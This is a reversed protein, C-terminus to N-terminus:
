KWADTDPSYTWVGSSRLICLVYSSYFSSIPGSIFSLFDRYKCTSRGFHHGTRGLQPVGAAEGKTPNWSTRNAICCCTITNADLLTLISGPLYSLLQVRRNECTNAPPIVTGATPIWYALPVIRYLRSSFPARPYSPDQSCRGVRDLRPGTVVRCRTELWTLSKSDLVLSCTCQLSGFM